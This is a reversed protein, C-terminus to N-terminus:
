RSSPTSRSSDPAESAKGESEKQAKLTMNFMDKLLENSIGNADGHVAEANTSLSTVGTLTSGSGSLATADAASAPPSFPSSFLHCEDCSHM